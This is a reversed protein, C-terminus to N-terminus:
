GVLRQLTGMVITIYASVAIDIILRHSSLFPFRWANGRLPAVTDAVLRGVARAFISTARDLRAIPANPQDAMGPCLCRRSPPACGNSIPPRVGRGNTSM